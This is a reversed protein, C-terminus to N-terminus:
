GYMSCSAGRLTVGVEVMVRNVGSHLSIRRGMRLMQGSNRNSSSAAGFGGSEAVVGVVALGEGSGEDSAVRGRDVCGRRNDGSEAGRGMARSEGMASSHSEADESMELSGVLIGRERGEAM